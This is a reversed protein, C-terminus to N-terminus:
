LEAIAAELEKLAKAIVLEERKNELEEADKELQIQAASKPKTMETAIEHSVKAVVKGTAKTLENTSALKVGKKVNDTDVDVAKWNVVGCDVCKYNQNIIWNVIEDKYALMATGGAIIAVVIGMAFGTGAFLYTIWAWYGTIPIASGIIKVFLDLNTEETHGCNRCKIQM